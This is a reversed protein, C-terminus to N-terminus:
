GPKLYLYDHHPEFGLGSYAAIAGTNEKAVQLYVSRAAYRAAWHGLERMIMTAMGNRRHDPDTWLAALGLWDGGVHGRGLASIVGTSSRISALGVPPNGALIRRAVQHDPVPRYQLYSQWWENTLDTNIEVRPNRPHDGLLGVLPQAMVTTIVYTQQWGLERLAQEAESGAIVQARPELGRETFYDIILQAAQAYAMGPNGVALCSNARGSFGNGSRLTWNGLPESDAIWSARAALELEDASVKSPPRGGMAPPVQKALIIRDRRVTTIRDIPSVIEIRETDIATVWGVVDTASGDDLRHRVTVRDDPKFRDVAAAADM